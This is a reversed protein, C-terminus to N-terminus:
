HRRRMVVVSCVKARTFPVMFGLEARRIGWLPRLLGRLSARAVGTRAVADEADEADDAGCLQTPVKSSSRVALHVRLGPQCRM